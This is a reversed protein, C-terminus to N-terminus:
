FYEEWINKIRTWLKNSFRYTNEFNYRSEPFRFMGSSGLFSGPSGGPGDMVATVPLAELGVIQRLLEPLGNLQAAAGICVAGEMHRLADLEELCERVARLRDTYFGHLCRNIQGRQVDRYLAQRKVTVSRGDRLDSEQVSGYNKKLDEALERSIGLEKSLVEDADDGGGPLVRCDILNSHRFVAIETRTAGFDILIFHEKKLRDAKCASVQALPALIMGQCVRDMYEFFQDLNASYDKDVVYFAVRTELKRGFVGLPPAYFIKGDLRFETPFVHVPRYYWDLSLLRAQEIAKRIHIARVRRTGRPHLVMQSYGEIRTTKDPPLCYLIRSVRRRRMREFERLRAGVTEATRRDFVDFRGTPDEPRIDMFIGDRLTKLSESDFM